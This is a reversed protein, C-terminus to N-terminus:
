ALLEEFIDRMAALEKAFSEPDNGLLNEVRQCLWPWAAAESLCMVRFIDRALSCGQGAEVRSLYNNLGLTVLLRGLDSLGEAWKRAVRGREVTRGSQDPAVPATVFDLAQAAERLLQTKRHVELPSLSGTMTGVGDNTGARVATEIEGSEVSLRRLNRLIALEDNLKFPGTPELPMGKLGLKAVLRYANRVLRGDSRQNALERTAVEHILFEGDIWKIFDEVTEVAEHYSGEWGLPSEPALRIDLVEYMLGERLWSDASVGFRVPTGGTFVGERLLRTVAATDGEMAKRLVILAYAKSDPDAKGAEVRGHWGDAQLVQGLEVILEAYRRYFAEGTLEKPIAEEKFQSVRLWADYARRFRADAADHTRQLTVIQAQEARAKELIAQATPDTLTCQESVGPNSEDCPSSM